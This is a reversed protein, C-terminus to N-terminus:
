LDLESAEHLKETLELYTYPDLQKAFCKDINILYVSHLRANLIDDLQIPPNKYFRDALDKIKQIEDKKRKSPPKLFLKPIPLIGVVPTALAFKSCYQSYRAIKSAIRAIYYDITDLAHDPPTFGTEIEMIFTGDGKTAFVDCVLIDSLHKEIDVTYGQAILNSACIIELVSHNIKVLNKQYLEILRERVFNIKSKIEPSQDANLKETITYVDETFKEIDM